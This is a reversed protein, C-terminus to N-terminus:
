RLRKSWLNRTYLLRVKRLVVMKSRIRRIAIIVDFQMNFIREPNFTHIFEYTYSELGDARDYQAKGAGCYVCKVGDWM